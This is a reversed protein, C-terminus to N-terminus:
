SVVFMLGAAVLAVVGAALWVLVAGVVAGFAAMAVSRDERWMYAGVVVAAALSVLILVKVVLATAPDLPEGDGYVRHVCAAYARAEPVTASAADYTPMAALCEARKAAQMAINASAAAGSAIGVSVSM